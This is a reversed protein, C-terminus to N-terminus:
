SNKQEVKELNIDTSLMANDHGELVRALQWPSLMPQWTQHHKQHVLPAEINNEM